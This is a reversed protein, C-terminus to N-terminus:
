QLSNIMAWQTPMLATVSASRKDKFNGPKKRRIKESPAKCVLRTGDYLIDGCFFVNEPMIKKEIM